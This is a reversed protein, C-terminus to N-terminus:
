LKGRQHSPHDSVLVLEGTEALLSAFAAVSHHQGLPISIRETRDGVHLTLEVTDHYSRRLDLWRTVEGPQGPKGQGHHM